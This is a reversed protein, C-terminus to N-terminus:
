LCVCCGPLTVDCLTVGNGDACLWLVQLIPLSATLQWTESGATDRHCGLYFVNSGNTCVEIVPVSFVSFYHETTQKDKVFAM